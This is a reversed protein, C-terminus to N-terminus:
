KALVEHLLLPKRGLVTEVDSTVEEMYGKATYDYLMVLYDAASEPLGHEMAGAKLQEHSLAVNAITEGKQNSLLQAVETHSLAESGTPNLEKGILSNNLLAQNFIAAIDRTSIFSTKGEQASHVIAKDNSISAASFGTTFNESFFNPRIITYEFGNNVLELEIKRLPANEDFNAKFASLMVVRKIGKSQLQQIFPLMREYAKADLPPAALVVKSVEELAPEFTSVDDYDFRKYTAGDIPTTTALNRVGAVITHDTVTQRVIEKGLNGNAGTILTKM